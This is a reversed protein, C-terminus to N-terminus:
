RRCSAPRRRSSPWTGSATPAGVASSRIAPWSTSSTIKGLMVRTADGFRQSVYLSSAVVEDKGGVPLLGSTHVPFLAGGRFAPLDGGRYTLHAHLGGGEWHGLKDSDGNILLDARAGFGAGDNGTGKFMDQYFGTAWFDFRIGQQGFASRMGGWDGGLTDRTWPSQPPGGDNPAQAHVPSAAALLLGLAWMWRLARSHTQPAYTDQASRQAGTFM